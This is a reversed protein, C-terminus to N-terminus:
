YRGNKSEKELHEKILREIRKSIMIDGKECFKQFEAYIKDDISLTIKKNVM